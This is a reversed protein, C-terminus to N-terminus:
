LAARPMVTPCSLQKPLASLTHIVAFLINKHVEPVTTQLEAPWAMTLPNHTDTTAKDSMNSPQFSPNSDHLSTIWSTGM